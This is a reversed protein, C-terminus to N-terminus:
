GRRNEEEAEGSKETRELIAKEAKLAPVQIIM